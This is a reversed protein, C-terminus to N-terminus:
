GTAEADAIACAANVLAWHTLAQPFNGLFEGSGPDMEESYLGVDNALEIAQQMLERAAGTEGSMALYQVLWFTCALFCGEDGPLGDDGRYRYVLPGRGLERRIAAATSRMRDSRPAYGSVAALLIAADLEDSGAAQMYAGRSQSWCQEDVFADIADAERSWRDRRDDDLSWRDALDVACRLAVCAMMKSQTFHQESGQFEWIGSDTDQWTACVHDAIAALRQRQEHQIEGGQTDYGRAAALLYGYIDLQTQHSASNGSRVPRTGKYGDLDLEREQLRTSGALRYLVRLEPQTQRTAHMLWSFFARAELLCGIKMFADLTGAADRIWCYRYDWNRVGGIEEPLSSTAAAVISGAPAWILLKLALASRLVEDKWAGEYTREEAWSQWYDITRERRVAVQARSPFVLPEKCALSICLEASDGAALSFTSGLRDGDVHAEGANWASVGLADPGHSAAYRTGVQRWRVGRRGRGLSPRVVWCMAVQGDLCEISRALERMPSLGPRPLLLADTVRVTGSATSYTSQLANSRGAYSREVEYEGAPQLGFTRGAGKDLLADFMPPSDIHPSCLWDIAGDRAVLAITRGDGIAAYDAIPAYRGPPEPLPAVAGAGEEIM